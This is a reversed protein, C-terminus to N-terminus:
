GVVKHWLVVCCSNYFICDYGELFVVFEAWQSCLDGLVVEVVLCCEEAWGLDLFGEMDLCRELVESFFEFNECIKLDEIAIFWWFFFFELVTDSIYLGDELIHFLVRLTDLLPFLGDGFEGLFLMDCSEVYFYECCWFIYFQEMLFKERGWIIGLEISCGEWLAAIVEEGLREDLAEELLAFYFVEFIVEEYGWFMFLIPALGKLIGDLLFSFGELIDLEEFHLCFSEEGSIIDWVWGLCINGYGWGEYGKHFWVWSGFCSLFSYSDLICIYGLLEISDELLEPFCFCFVFFEIFYYLILFCPLYFICELLIGSCLVCFLIQYLLLTGRFM